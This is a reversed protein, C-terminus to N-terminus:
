LPQFTEECKLIATYWFHTKPQWKEVQLLTSPFYSSIDTKHHIKMNQIQLLAELTYFYAQTTVKRSRLAVGSTLSPKFFSTSPRLWCQWLCSAAGYIVGSRSVQNLACLCFCLCLVFWFGSVCCEWLCYRWIHGIWLVECCLLVFVVYFCVIFGKVKWINTYKMQQFSFDPVGCM